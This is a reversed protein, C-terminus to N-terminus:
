RTCEPYADLQLGPTRCFAPANPTVEVRVPTPTPLTKFVKNVESFHSRLLALAQDPHGLQILMEALKRTNCDPSIWSPGFGGGGTIGAGSAGFGVTPCDMGGGGPSFVDPARASGTYGGGSSGQSVNVTANSSGSRSVSRSPGTTASATSHARNTNANRNSNASSGDGYVQSQTPDGGKNVQIPNAVAVTTSLAMVAVASLLLKKM